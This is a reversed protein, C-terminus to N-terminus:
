TRWAQGTLSLLPWEPIIGAVDTSKWPAKAANFGITEATVDM